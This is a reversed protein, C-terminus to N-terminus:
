AAYSIGFRAALEDYVSVYTQARAVVRLVDEDVGEYNTVDAMECYTRYNRILHAQAGEVFLTHIAKLITDFAKARNADTGAKETEGYIKIGQYLPSIHKNM